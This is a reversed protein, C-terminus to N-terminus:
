VHMKLADHLTSKIADEANEYFNEVNSQDDGTVIHEEATNGLSKYISKEVGSGFQTLKTVCAQCRKEGDAYLRLGFYRNCSIFRQKNFCSSCLENDSLLGSRPIINCGRCSTYAEVVLIDKDKILEHDVCCLTSKPTTLDLHEIFRFNDCCM